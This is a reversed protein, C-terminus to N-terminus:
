PAYSEPVSGFDIYIRSGGSASIVVTSNAGNDQITIGTGATLVREATLVAESEMTVFSQGYIDVKAYVSDLPDTGGVEHSDNHPEIGPQWAGAPGFRAASPLPRPM